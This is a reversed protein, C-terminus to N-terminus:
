TNYDETDLSVAINYALDKLIMKEDNHIGDFSYIFEDNIVVVSFLDGFILENRCLKELDFDIDLNYLEYIVNMLLIFQPFSKITPLPYPIKDDEITVADYNVIANSIKMM